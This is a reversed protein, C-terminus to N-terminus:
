ALPKGKRYLFNPTDKTLKAVVEHVNTTREKYQTRFECKNSIEATLEPGLEIGLFDAIRSVNESLNQLFFMAQKVYM